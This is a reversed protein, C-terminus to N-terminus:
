RRSRQRRIAMAGGVMAVLLLSAPEPVATMTGYGYNQALLALDTLDVDGDGDFNGEAPGLMPPATAGYHGALIALDTLDVDGDGDCDGPIAEAGIVNLIGGYVKANAFGLTAIESDLKYLVSIQNSANIDTAMVLHYIDREAPTLLSELLVAQTNGENTEWLFAQTDMGFCADEVYAFSGNTEGVSGTGNLDGSVYGVAFGADNIAWCRGRKANVQVPDVDHTTSGDTVSLMAASFGTTANPATPTWVFPALLRWPQGAEGVVTGNANMDAAIYHIGPLGMMSPPAPIAIAMTSNPGTVWVTSQYIGGLAGGNANGVINMSDNIAVARANCYAGAPLTVFSTGDRTTATSDNMWLCAKYAGGDMAQGVVYGDANVDSAKAQNNVGGYLLEPDGSGWATDARMAHWYRDVTSTFFGVVTGSNNIATLSDIRAGFNAHPTNMLGMNESGRFGHTQGDQVYNGVVVGADNIGPVTVAYQGAASPAGLKTTGYFNIAPRSGNGTMGSDTLTYEAPLSGAAISHPLVVVLVLLCSNRLTGLM